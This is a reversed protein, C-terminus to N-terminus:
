ITIDNITHNQNTTQEIILNLLYDVTGAVTHTHKLMSEGGGTGSDTLFHYSICPRIGSDRPRVVIKYDAALRGM